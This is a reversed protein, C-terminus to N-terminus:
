GALYSDAHAMPRGTDCGLHKCQQEEKHEMFMDVYEKVTLTKVHEVTVQRDSDIETCMYQMEEFSYIDSL